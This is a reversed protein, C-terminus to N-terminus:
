TDDPSYDPKTTSNMSLFSLFIDFEIYCYNSAQMNWLIDTVQWTKQFITIKKKNFIYKVFM